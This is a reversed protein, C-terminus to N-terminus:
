VLSKLFAQECFKQFDNKGRWIETPSSGFGKCDEAWCSISEQISERSPNEWPDWLQHFTQITKEELPSM